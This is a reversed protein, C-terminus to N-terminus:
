PTAGCPAHRLLYLTDRSAVEELHLRDIGIGRFVRGARFYSKRFTVVIGARRDLRRYGIPFRIIHYKDAARYPPVGGGHDDGSKRLAILEVALRHHGEAGVGGGISILRQLLNDIECGVCLM